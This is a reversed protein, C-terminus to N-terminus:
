RNAAHRRSILARVKAKTDTSLTPSLGELPPRAAAKLRCGHKQSWVGGRVRQALFQLLATQDEAPLALEAAQLQTLTPM